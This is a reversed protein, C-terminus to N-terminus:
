SAVLELGRPCSSILQSFAELCVPRYALRHSMKKILSSIPPCLGSHTTGGRPPHSQTTEFILSSLGCPAFRCADVETPEADTGTLKPRWLSQM